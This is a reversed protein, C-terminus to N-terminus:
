AFAWGYKLRDSIVSSLLFISNPCVAALTRARTLGISGAYGSVIEPLEGSMKLQPQTQQLEAKQCGIHLTGGQRYRKRGIARELLDETFSNPCQRTSSSNEYNLVSNIVDLNFYMIYVIFQSIPVAIANIQTVM